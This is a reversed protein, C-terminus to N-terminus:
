KQEEIKVRFNYIDELKAKEGIKQTLNFRENWDIDTRANIEDIKAQKEQNELNKKHNSLIKDVNGRLSKVMEDTVNIAYKYQRIKGNGDTISIIVDYNGLEWKCQLLLSDRDQNELAEIIKQTVTSESFTVRLLEPKDKALYIPHAYTFSNLRTREYSNVYSQNYPNEFFWWEFKYVDNSAKKIDVSVSSVINEIDKSVLTFYLEVDLGTNTFCIMFSKNPIITIRAKHRKYFKILWPQILALLAIIATLAMANDVIWTWINM